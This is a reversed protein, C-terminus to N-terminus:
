ITIARCFSPKSVRGREDRVAWEPHDKFVKSASAASGVSIWLGPEMGAKRIEDFVPKLGNPFKTKDVIWDGTNAIWSVKKGSIIRHLIGGAILKM